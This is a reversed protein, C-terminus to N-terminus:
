GEGDVVGEFNLHHAMHPNVPIPKIRPLIMIKRTSEPHNYTFNITPSPLTTLQTKHTVTSSSTTLQTKHTIALNQTKHTKLTVASPFTILKITKYTIVSPM